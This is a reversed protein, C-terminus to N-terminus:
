DLTVIFDARAPEISAYTSLTADATLLTLGLMQAQAILMRDFPDRHLKPLRAVALAHSHEIPLPIIGAQAMRSPLYQEPPEPLPLRGTHHKVVIEWSSAASLILETERDEITSLYGGLRRRNTNLWLFVHTDLLIRM